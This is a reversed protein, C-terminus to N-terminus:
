CWLVGNSQQLTGTFFANSGSLTGTKAADSVGSSSEADGDASQWNAAAPSSGPWAAAFGSSNNLTLTGNGIALTATSQFTSINHIMPSNGGLDLMATNYLGVNANDAPGLAGNNGLLLTGTAVMTIGTFTNSGSLVLTGTGVKEISYSGGSVVGSLTLTGSGTGSQGMWEYQEWLAINATITQSLAGRRLHHGRQGREGDHDHHRRSHLQRGVLAFTISSFGWGSTNNNSNLQTSGAFVLDANNTLGSPTWNM